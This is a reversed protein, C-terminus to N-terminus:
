GSGRWSTRLSLTWSQDRCVCHQILPLFRLASWRQFVCVSSLAIARLGILVDRPKLPDSVAGLHKITTAHSKGAVIATHATYGAARLSGALCRMQEEFHAQEVEKDGILLVFEPLRRDGTSKNITETADALAPAPSATNSGALTQCQREVIKGPDSADWEAAETGFAHRVTM